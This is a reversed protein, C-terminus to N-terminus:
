ANHELLQNNIASQYERAEKYFFDDDSDDEIVGPGLKGILFGKRRAGETATALFDGYDPSRRVRDKMDDKTELVILEGKRTWERMCLEEMIIDPLGRM